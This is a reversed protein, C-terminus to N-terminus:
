QKMKNKKTTAKRKEIEKWREMERKKKGSMMTWHSGFANLDFHCCMFIIYQANIVFVHMDFHIFFFAASAAAVVFAGSNSFLAGLHFDCELLM